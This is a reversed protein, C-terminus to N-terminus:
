RELHTRIKDEQKVQASGVQPERSTGSQELRGVAQAQKVTKIDQYARSWEFGLEFMKETFEERIIM